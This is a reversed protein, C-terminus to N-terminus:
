KAQKKPIFLVDVRRNQTAEDEITNIATPRDEGWAQGWTNKLKVGHKEILYERVRKLRMVSLDHNYEPDGLKSAHSHLLVNFQEPDGLSMMITDIVETMDPSMVSSNNSFRVYMRSSNKPLKFENEKDTLTLSFEGNLPWREGRLTDQEISSELKICYNWRQHGEGTLKDSRNGSHLSTANPLVYPGECSLKNKSIYWKVKHGIGNVKINSFPSLETTLRYEKESPCHVSFEGALTQASERYAISKSKDFTCELATEDTRLQVVMTENIKAYVISSSALMTGVVFNLCIGIKKM